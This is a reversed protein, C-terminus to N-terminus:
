GAYKQEDREYSGVAETIKLSALERKEMQRFLLYLINGRRIRWASGIRNGPIKGGGALRYISKLDIKLITAM